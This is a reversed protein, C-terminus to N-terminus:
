TVPGETTTFTVIQQGQATIVTGIGSIAPGDPALADVQWTASGRVGGASSPKWNTGSGSTWIVVEHPGTLGGATFGVPGATLATVTTGPGAPGFPARQWTRGGDASLEAFPVTGTQGPVTAQGLAVVNLGNIAVQRLVATRAGGPVPLVTTDWSRGDGTTWIAPHSGRSGVSVFGHMSAAVALVQGSGATSTM